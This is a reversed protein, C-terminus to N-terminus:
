LGPCPDAVLSRGYASAEPSTYAGSLTLAENGNSLPGSLQLDGFTYTGYPLFTDAYQGSYPGYCTGQVDLDGTPKVDIVYTEADMDVSGAREVGGGIATEQFIGCGGHFDDDPAILGTWTFEENWKM